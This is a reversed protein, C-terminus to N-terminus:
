RSVSERTAVALAGGLLLWFIRQYMMEHVLSFIAFVLLIYVLLRSSPARRKLSVWFLGAFGSVIGVAGLVGTEALLWIPTSHIVISRGVEAASNAFYTGLGAGFWPHELWLAIGGSLTAWRLSDYEPAVTPARLIRNRSFIGALESFTGARDSFTSALESAFELAALVFLFMGGWALSHLMFKRCEKEERLFAFLAIAAFAIFGARSQTLWVGALLAGTAGTLWYDKGARVRAPMVTLACALGMLLQLSFANRNGSWGEFNFPLSVNSSWLAIAQRVICNSAVVVAGAVVVAELLRRFGHNGTLYATMAGTAMYGLIVVWGMMRNALAWQTVGIRAVGLFFSIVLVGTVVLLWPTVFTMRWTPLSRQGIWHMAFVALGTLAVPDALNVNVVGKGIELHAQFFVLIATTLGLFYAGVREVDGPSVPSPSHHLAVRSYSSAKEGMLVPLFLFVVFTSCIGIVVSIAIADSPQVGLPSLAFVSALERIGWGNVSIPISAAFSIIAAAAFWQLFNGMHMFAILVAFASLVFFQALLTIGFMQLVLLATRPSVSLKILVQDYRSRGFIFVTAMAIISVVAIQGVPLANLLDFSRAWGFTVFLGTLALIASAFLLVVREYTSLVGLATPSVGHRRLILQRGVLNGVLQIVFHGVAYGAVSAKLATANSVRFGFQGLAVRLRFSVVLFNVVLLGLVVGYDLIRFQVIRNLVDRTGFQVFLAAIVLVSVTVSLIKKITSFKGVHGRM